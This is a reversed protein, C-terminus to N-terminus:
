QGPIDWPPDTNAPCTDCSDISTTIILGDPPPWVGEYGPPPPIYTSDTTEPNTGPDAYLIVGFLVVCVFVVLASAILRKM